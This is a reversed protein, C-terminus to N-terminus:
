GQKSSEREMCNLFSKGNNKVIDITTPNQSCLFSCYGKTGKLMHLYHAVIHLYKNSMALNRGVKVLWESLLEPSVNCIALHYLWISHQRDMEGTQLQSEIFPRIFEEFMQQNFHNSNAWFYLIRSILRSQEANSIKKGKTEQWKAMIATEIGAFAKLDHHGIISLFRLFEAQLEM